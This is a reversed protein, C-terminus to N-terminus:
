KQLVVKSIIVDEGYYIKLFYIGPYYNIKSITHENSEINDDILIVEGLSNILEIRDIRGSGSLVNITSHTPNPFIIIKNDDFLNINNKLAFELTGLVKDTSYDFGDYVSLIFQYITGLSDVPVNFKTTVDGPSQIILQERSYWKYQLDDMDPDYSESGDLNYAGGQVLVLDDGANAVPRNNEPIVQWNITETGLGNNGTIYKIINRLDVNLSYTGTNTSINRLGKVLYNTGSEKLVSLDTQDIINFNYYLSLDNRDFTSDIVSNGFTLLISDPLEFKNLRIIEKSVIQLPYPDSFFSISQWADNGVSDIFQLNLPIVGRHKLVIPVDVTSNEAFVTDALLLKDTYNDRFVKLRLKPESIAVSLVVDDAATKMDTASYGLDPSITIDNSSIPPTRDVNWSFTNSNALPNGALDYIGDPIVSFKYQGENFTSFGFGRVIYTEPANSDVSLQDNTINVEDMMLNFSENTIRNVPESFTVQIGAVHQPDIQGEELKNISTIYPNKTDLYWSVIFNYIGTDGDLTEVHSLDISLMYHGDEQMLDRLGTILFEYGDEDNPTIKFDNELTDGELLYGKKYDLPYYDQRYNRWFNIYEELLGQVPDPFIILLTDFSDNFWYDLEPIQPPLKLKIEDIHQTWNYSCNELGSIGNISSIDKTKITLKYIGRGQTHKSIDIKINASDILTIKLTSDIVNLGSDISLEFDTYTLSAPNLEKNFKILVSDLPQGITDNEPVNTSVILLSTSDKLKWSMLYDMKQVSSFTDVFHVMNEYVPEKTDRLTVHTLWINTKPIVQNDSLRIIHEIEYDGNGPDALRSYNWGVKEPIVTLINTDRLGYLTSDFSVANTNSVSLVKNGQSLYIADPLFDVEATDNVLFDKRGDDSEGYVSISRILEHLLADGILSTNDYAAANDHTVTIDYSVFHGLLTSTFLWEGITSHQPAISGFDINILGLETDEGDLKSGILDFDIYLGKENDVIEPQASEIRVNNAIGYGNNYLMVALEAPIVPEEITTLPDDGLIDRQMFYHINLEPGPKVGLTVPFLPKTVNTGTFPDLYKISGGFSYNVVTDKAAENGPIFTIKVEGKKTQPLSGTGDISSFGTFSDFRIDFKDNCLIGGEDFIEIDLEFNRISDATHGNFVTLTGEFAQRTIALKQEIELSVSACVSSADNDTFYRIERLSNELLESISQVNRSYAYNLASDCQSIAVELASNDIYNEGNVDKLITESKLKIDLTNNWRETFYRIEGETFGSEKLTDIISIVDDEKIKIEELIYPDFQIAFEKFNPKIMWEIEGMFENMWKNYGNLYYLVYGYDEASQKLSTPMKGGNNNKEEIYELLIDPPDLYCTGLAEGINYFCSYFPIGTGICETAEFFDVGDQFSKICLAIDKEDVIFGVLPMEDLMCEFLALTLGSLCPDCFIDKMFVPLDKVDTSGVFGGGDGYTGSRTPYGFAGLGGGFGFPGIFNSIATAVGNATKYIDYSIYQCNGLNFSAYINNWIQDFGCEYNYRATAMHLCSSTLYNGIVPNQRLKMIVPIIVSDKADINTKQWDYFFEYITHNNPLIFEVDNARIWGENKLIVDFSYTEGDQLEPMQDPMNISVVPVPVNTEFEMNLKITYYDEIETERVDWYYTIANFQLFIVEKNIRGPEIYIYNNYSSHMDASIELKYTGEPITDIFVQGSSDTLGIFIAKGSYPDILYVLASDLHPTEETYYTYEDVVDVLLSGKAESVSTIKFPIYESTGNEVRIKVNGKIPYNLPIEEGPEIELIVKASDKSGLNEYSSASILRLWSVDPLLIDVKGTEGAGNNWLYFEFLRKNDKTVNIDITDVSTKIQGFPAQCYYYANFLSYVGEESIIKVPVEVYELGETVSNGKIRYKIEIVANGPLYELTDSVLTLGEPENQLSLMVNTLPYNSKNVIQITGTDVENQIVEWIIWDGSNRKVYPIDFEDQIEIEESGPFATGIKFHGREYTNPQFKWTFLGEENTKLREIKKHGDSNIIYLDLEKYKAPGGKYYMASGQILVPELYFFVSDDVSALIEYSNLVQVEVSNSTNNFYADEVIAHDSNLQLLLNYTGSIFPVTVLDWFHFSQDADIAQKLEFSGIVMDDGDIEKDASLVVKINMGEPLRTFGNNFIMTSIESQTGAILTDKPISIDSVEADPYVNDTVFVWANGPTYGDCTATINVLQKGDKITDIVTQISVTKISDGSNFILSDPLILESEDDSNLYVIDKKTSNDREITLIGDQNGEYLIESNISLTIGLANNGVLIVKDELKEINLDSCDCTSKDIEAWITIETTQFDNPVANFTLPFITEQDESNLIIFEPVNILEPYSSYLNLKISNDIEKNKFVKSWSAISGNKVVITDVPVSLELDDKNKICRISFGLSLDERYGRAIGNIDNYYRLWRFNYIESSTWWMCGQGEYGFNGYHSLRCGSPLASFGYEDTGTGYLNWGSIAMIKTVEGAGRLGIIDADEQSIGLYMELVKWEEDSPVHWGDPCAGQIPNKGDFPIGNVAAAYTYYAGYKQAYVTSDNNYWCYAKDTINDGLNQWESDDEVKQIKTGDAYRTVKLNEAMWWQDEIKVTKYTNGDIDTVSDYLIENNKEAVVRILDTKIISDSGASNTVILRVTYTEALNYTHLPNPETSTGEDGFDWLWTTPDNTSQDTFQIQEGEKIETKDATFEAGPMDGKFEEDKVCRVSIGISKYYLWRLIDSNTDVLDRSYSADDESTYVTSSWWRGFSGMRNFSGVVSDRYGGPLASFGYDDTGNGNNLWGLIAKLKNGEVTGRYGIADANERSMGLYMELVKWEEDSPVHWGDPCAGQVPYTGNFPTGNTAAACTYLAGYTQAYSISDNDYWCYAKDTNNDGLNAWETNDEVKPIPTGDSYNTVRLNEAMWWQDGIKVTKYTNGDIDTVTGSDSPLKEISISKQETNNLIINQANIFSFLSITLFTLLSRTKM